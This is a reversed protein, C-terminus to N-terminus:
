KWKKLDKKELAVLFDNKEKVRIKPDAFSWMENHDKVAVVNMNYNKRLNLEILNKGIWEKRARLEVICFNEDVEVYDLLSTSLIQAVRLGGEEEPDLIRDAGVKKLISTMRDSSTKALVLPVGQEKAVTVAMISAVLSRGMASVVIDMNKLDLALVEEENSLDACIAITSKGAFERVVEERKDAVLVESGMAYLSEALKKGFKGLGLVAISLKM